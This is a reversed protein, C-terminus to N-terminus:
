SINGEQLALTKALNKGSGTSDEPKRIEFVYVLAFLIIVVFLLILTNRFKM